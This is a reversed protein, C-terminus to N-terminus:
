ATSPSFPAPLDVKILITAPTTWGSEPAIREVARFSAEGTGGRRGGRAHDADKLFQRQHRVERDRVVNRDGRRRAAETQDVRAGLAAAGLRQEGLDAALVDVADDAHAIQRQRAALHDLDGLREALLRLQENEVLRGRRQGARVDVLDVGEQRPQFGLVDGDKVDGMAHVLDLRQGVPRGDKAVAAVDLGEVLARSRRRLDDLQHDAAVDGRLIRRLGLARRAARREFDVIEAPLVPELAYRQLDPAPSITPRPPSSPWPWFVSSSARNPTRRPTVPAIVTLPRATRGPDGARALDRSIPM